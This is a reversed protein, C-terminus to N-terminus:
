KEEAIHVIKYISESRAGDFRVTMTDGILRAGAKDIVFGRGSQTNIVVTGSSLHKLDDRSLVDGVAFTPTPVPRNILEIVCNDKNATEAYVTTNMGEPSSDVWSGARRDHVVFETIRFDTEGFTQTFRVRDGNQIESFAIVGPGGAESEPVLSDEAIWMYESSDSPNDVRYDGYGDKRSVIVGIRSEGFTAGMSRELNRSVYNRPEPKVWVRDGTKFKDESM